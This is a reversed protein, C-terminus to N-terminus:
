KWNPGLGYVAGRTKWMQWAQGQPILVLVEAKVMQGLVRDLMSDNDKFPTVDYLRKRLFNYPVCVCDRGHFSQPIGYRPHAREESTMRLFEGMRRIIEGEAKNARNGGVDGTEFRRAVSGVSRLTTAVAWEAETWDGVPARHNRGVAVLGFLKLANLHARNFLEAEVSTSSNIKEDCDVDFEDLCAEAEPTCGVELVTNSQRMSLAFGILDELHDVVERSLVPREKNRRPRDGDYDFVLFRSVLGQSVLHEDLAQFFTEPTGECAITLAPSEVPQINDDTKAYIGARLIKNHGSKGHLHLLTKKLGIHVESARPHCLQQLTLGFEGLNCMVSPHQILYRHIAQGSAIAGPGLYDDVTPFKSRVAALLRDIGDELGSKGRGTKATVMLYLNLGTGSINYQRGTIAATLALAAALAVVKVPRIASRFFYRALDGVLGPPFEIDPASSGRTAASSGDTAHM